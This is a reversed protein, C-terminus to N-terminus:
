LLNSCYVSVPPKGTDPFLGTKSSDGSVLIRRISGKRREGDKM